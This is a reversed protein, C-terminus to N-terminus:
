TAALWDPISTRSAGVKVEGFAREHRVEFAARAGPLRAVLAEPLMADVREVVEAAIGRSSWAFGQAFMELEADNAPAPFGKMDRLWPVINAEELALHADLLSSLEAVVAATKQASVPGSLAAFAHDGEQLLPDIRRHDAVLHEVVAALSPQRDLVASFLGHDEAEHHGHLTNRYNRWEDRLAAVRLSDGVVVRALAAKFCAIDRRFGHHSMMLATAVSASGDDNLLRPADPPSM